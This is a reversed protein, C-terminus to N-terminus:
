FTCAAVLTLAPAREIRVWDTQKTLCDLIWNDLFLHDTTICEKIKHQADGGWGKTIDYIYLVHRVGGGGGGGRGKM